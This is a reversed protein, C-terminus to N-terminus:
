SKCSTKVLIGIILLDSDIQLPRIGGSHGAILDPIFLHVPIDFPPRHANGDQIVATFADTHAIQKVNRIGASTGIGSGGVNPFHAPLVFVCDDLIQLPAVTDWIINTRQFVM